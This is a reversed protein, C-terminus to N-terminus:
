SGGSSVSILKWTTSGVSAATPIYNTVKSSMDAYYVSLHSGSYARTNGGSQIDWEQEFPGHYRQYMGGYINVDPMPMGRNFNSLGIAGGQAVLTADIELPSGWSNGTSLSIQNCNQNGNNKAPTGTTMNCYQLAQHPAKLTGNSQLSGTYLGTVDSPCWGATTGSMLTQGSSGAAVACAVPHYINVSGLADIVMAKSSGSATTIPGTIWTNDDSLLMLQGSNTGEVYADGPGDSGNAGTSGTLYQTDDYVNPFYSAAGPCTVPWTTLTVTFSFQLTGPTVWNSGSKTQRYVDYRVVQTTQTETPSGSSGQSSFFGDNTIPGSGSSSCTGSLTKTTGTTTGLVTPTAVYQYTTSSNDMQSLNSQVCTQIDSVLYTQQGNSTRSGCQGLFSGGSMLKSDRLIPYMDNTTSGTNQNGNTECDFNHQDTAVRNTTCGTSTSTHASWGPGDPVGNTKHVESWACTQNPTASTSNYATTSCGSDSATATGGQDPGTTTTTTSPGNVYFVSSSAAANSPPSTSNSAAIPSKQGTLRYGSTSGLNKVYIVHGGASGYNM